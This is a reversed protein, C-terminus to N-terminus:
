LDGGGSGKMGLEDAGVDGVAHHGSKSATRHPVSRPLFTSLETIGAGYRLMTRWLVIIWRKVTREVSDEAEVALIYHLYSLVSSSTATLNSAATRSQRALACLPLLTHLAVDPEVLFGKRM